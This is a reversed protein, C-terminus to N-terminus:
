TGFLMLGLGLMAIMLAFALFSFDPKDPNSM